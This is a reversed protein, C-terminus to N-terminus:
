TGAKAACHLHSGTDNTKAIRQVSRYRYVVNSKLHREYVLILTPLCTKLKRSTFMMNIEAATILKEKFRLNLNGRNQLVLSPTENNKRRQSWQSSKGFPKNLKKPQTLIKQLMENVLKSSWIEPYQNKAM